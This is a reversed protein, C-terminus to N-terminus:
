FIEPAYHSILLAPFHQVNLHANSKNEFFSLYSMPVPIVRTFINEDKIVKQELSKSFEGILSGGGMLMIEEPVTGNRFIAKWAKEAWIGKPISLIESIRKRSSPSLEGRSYQEQLLRASDNPLGLKRSLEGSFDFSGKNFLEARLIGEKHTSFIQTYKGGVDIYVRSSDRNGFQLAQFEHVLKVMRIRLDGLVATMGEIYHAPAYTLLIKFNLDEGSHNQINGIKYGNISTSIFDHSIWSLDKEIVGLEGCVIPMLKAQTEAIVFKKITAEEAKEIKSRGNKRQFNYDVIKVRLIDPPLSVVAPFIQADEVSKKVLSEAKSLFSRKIVDGMAVSVSKKVFSLNGTVSEQFYDVSVGLLIIKREKPHYAFLAIKVAETGLDITFFPKYYAQHFINKGIKLKM